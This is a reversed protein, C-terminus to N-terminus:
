STLVVFGENALWTAFRAYVRQPVALASSLLVSQRYQTGAPPSFLNATLAFGDATLLEFPKGANM